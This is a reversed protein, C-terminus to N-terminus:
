GSAAMVAEIDDVEKVLHQSLVKPKQNTVLVDDEIRIGTNRFHKAIDLRNAIYLGPEITLVMGAEFRRLKGSKDKNADTTDHVDLGLWHGIGHMYFDRYAARKILASLPGKLLGIDILGRSLSHAAVNNVDCWSNGVKVKAIAQLQAELVVEYLERQHSKFRKSVPITRTIDSAYMQYEAGADILLLSGAKLRSQNNTYHLVCANAGGAVISPYAARANHQNFVRMIEADIQYEYLQPRCMQMARRHAGVSIDVSQQIGEIELRSKKLRLRGLLTRIDIYHNPITHGRQNWYAQGCLDVLQSFRNGDLTDCYLNKRGDILQTFVESFADMPFIKDAGFARKARDVGIRAGEWLATHEDNPTCFLIYDGLSHGAALVMIMKDEANGNLYYFNSDQRYRHDVDNSYNRQEAAFLCVISDVGAAQLVHKRRNALEKQFINKQTLVKNVM